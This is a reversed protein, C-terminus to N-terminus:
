NVTAPGSGTSRSSRAWRLVSMALYPHLAVHMLHHDRTAAFHDGPVFAAIFALRHDEIRQVIQSQQFLLGPRQILGRRQGAPLQRLAERLQPTQEFGPELLVAAALIHLHKTQHLGEGKRFYSVGDFFGQQQARDAEVRHTMQQQAADFSSRRPQIHLVIRVQRMACTRVM